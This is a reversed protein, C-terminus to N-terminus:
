PSVPDPIPAADGSFLVGNDEACAAGLATAPDYGDPLDWANVATDNGVYATCVAAGCSADATITAGSIDLGSANGSLSVRKVVASAGNYVGLGHAIPVGPAFPCDDPLELCARPLTDLVMSESLTLAPAACPNEGFAMVGYMRNALVLAREVSAAAGYQVAIGIGHEGDTAQGGTHRVTLDAAAFATDCSGEEDGYVLVGATMNEEVLARDLRVDAHRYIGIGIGAASDLAQPRTGRVTLDSATLRTTYAADEYVSVLLGFTSNDEILARDLTIDAENLIVIGQGDILEFPDALTRSVAIDRATVTLPAEGSLPGMLMVGVNNAYLVAVRELDVTLAYDLDLGRAPYGAAEQADTDAIIVDTLKATGIQEGEIGMAAIGFARNGQVLTRKLTLATRDISAIGYGWKGTNPSSRTGRVVLLDTNLTVGGGTEPGNASIGGYTCNEVLTGTLDGRAGDNFEMGKGRDVTADSTVGRVLLRDATLQAACGTVEATCLRIGVHRTQEVSSDHLTASAAGDLFLGGLATQGGGVIHIREATLSGEGTVMLGWGAADRVAIGTMTVACGEITVGGLTTEGPCAGILTLDRGNLTVPAYSGAAIRIVAGDPATDIVTQLDDGAAVDVVTTGEPPEYDECITVCDAEGVIPMTGAPCDAAILPLCYRHKGDAVDEWGDPCIGWDVPAPLAPAAPPTLGLDCLAEDDSTEVGDPTLVGDPSADATEDTDHSSAAHESCGLFFIIVLFLFPVPHDADAKRPPAPWNM